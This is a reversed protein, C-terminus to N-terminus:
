RDTEIGLNRLVDGAESSYVSMATGDATRLTIAGSSESWIAVVAAARIWGGDCEIWEPPRTPETPAPQAAAILHEVLDSVEGTMEYDWKVGAREAGLRFYHQMLSKAREEHNM